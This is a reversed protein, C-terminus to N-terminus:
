ANKRGIIRVSFMATQSVRSIFIEMGNEYLCCVESNCLIEIKKYSKCCDVETSSIFDSKANPVVFTKSISSKICLTVVICTLYLLKYHLFDVKLLM